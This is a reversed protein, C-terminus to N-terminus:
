SQALADRLLFSVGACDLVNAGEGPDLDFVVSTPRDIHPARHLFPHMELNALNASWVLAALSDVVVYRIASKGSRRPVEFTRVWSPTHPPADKSYFHPARVGDPYRKMTIPRGALHPLLYDSVRIYYDIVHGKNFGSPYLVKDPNSIRVPRGDV